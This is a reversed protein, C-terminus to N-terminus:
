TFYWDSVASIGTWGPTNKFEECKQHLKIHEPVCTTENWTYYFTIERETHWHCLRKYMMRLHMSVTLFHLTKEWQTSATCKSIREWPRICIFDLCPLFWDEKPLFHWELTESFSVQRCPSIFVWAFRMLKWEYHPAHLVKTHNCLSGNNHAQSAPAASSLFIMWCIARRVLGM